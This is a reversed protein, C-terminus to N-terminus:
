SEERDEFHAGRSICKRWTRIGFNGWTPRKEGGQCKMDGEKKGGKANSEVKWAKYNVQKTTYQKDRGSSHLSQSALYQQVVTGPM